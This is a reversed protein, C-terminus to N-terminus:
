PPQTPECDLSLQIVEPKNTDLLVIGPHSSQDRKGTNNVKAQWNEHRNPERKISSM